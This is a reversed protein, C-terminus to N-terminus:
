PSRRTTLPSPGQLRWRRAWWTRACSSPAHTRSAAAAYAALCRAWAAAAHGCVRVLREPLDEDAALAAQRVVVDAAQVGSIGLHRQAVSAVDEGPAHLAHADPDHWRGLDGRGGRFLTIREEIGRRVLRVAVGGKVVDGFAHLLQSCPPRRCRLQSTSGAGRRRSGRATADGRRITM